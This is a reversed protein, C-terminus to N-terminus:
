RSSGTREAPRSMPAPAAVLSAVHTSHLTRGVAWRTAERDAFQGGRCGSIIFDQDPHTGGRDIAGVAADQHARRRQNSEEGADACWPRLHGSGVEGPIHDGDAATYIIRERAFGAYSAVEQVKYDVAMEVLDLSLFQRIREPLNSLDSM